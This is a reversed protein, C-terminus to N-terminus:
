EAASEYCSRHRGTQQFPYERLDGLPPSLSLVRTARFSNTSQVTLTTFALVLYAGLTKMVFENFKVQQLAKREARGKM